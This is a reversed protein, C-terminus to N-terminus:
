CLIDWKNRDLRGTTDAMKSDVLYAQMGRTPHQVIDGTSIDAGCYCYYHSLLLAITIDAGCSFMSCDEESQDKSLLELEKWAQSVTKRADASPPPRVHGNTEHPSPLGSQRFSPVEYSGVARGLSNEVQDLRKELSSPMTELIMRLCQSIWSAQERPLTPTSFRLEIELDEAHPVAIAWLDASDGLEGESSLACDAGGIRVSANLSGHNQYVMASSFRTGGPWSTCDRIISRYGLHHHPVAAVTQDQMQSILTALTTNQDLRARVPLFNVCPGRVDDVGPFSSLYRNASVEGFVVDKEGLAQSLLLSWAAKMVSSATGLSTQMNQLPVRIQIREDLPHGARITEAPPPPVLYPMSSYQLTEKWFRRAASGDLAEVHSIWSHFHPGDSLSNHMYAADLDRFVLGLSIADYLSHHIELCLRQGQQGDADSILYFRALTTEEHSSTASPAPNQKKMGEVVMEGPLAKLVVQYLTPGHQVFVTRLIPHHQVVQECARRLRAADLAPSLELTFSILYGNGGGAEGAALMAAQVDTAPVVSEINDNQFYPNSQNLQSLRSNFTGLIAAVPQSLVNLRRGNQHSEGEATADTGPLSEAIVALSQSTLLAATTAQFGRRRCRSAVQMALISDGGMQVFSSERGIEGEPIRLVSSWVSQLLREEETAPPTSAGAATLRAELAARASSLDKKRTKLWERISAGDLKASATRPMREVALWVTPVMYSPLKSRAHDRIARLYQAALDAHPDSLEQLPTGRPLQPDTLCIVAVLETRGASIKTTTFVDRVEECTTLASELEGLEFRQGRIKVQNDQRGVFCISGDPNYKALDGTRYFHGTANKDRTPSWSPLPPIFSTATKVHDNLYGRAVGPGEILLEGVAGIPVLENTNGPSVIWIACGVPRGISEPYRSAPTLEAVTSLISAECPGWGNFLRLARGWTKSAESGVPEGISLLSQLGPVDDPSITRLVTPTLWAWNVKSSEIFGALSSERAEESPICLCGGFLLAGFIEGMSIDWVHAAFQLIRCGPQWGFRQALFTLSSALCRHELMVGKPVGTSGSTFIIYAVDEPSSTGNDTPGTVDPLASVSAASVAFVDPALGTSSAHEATSTLVTKAEASSVIAAKRDYPDSRDIPVCVGGAKMIAFIGVVTWLSKEFIFAVACDTSVGRRRLEHALRDSIEDLERYSASGDGAEVAPAAPQERAQASFLEHLCKEVTEPVADNWQLIESRDHPNLRPLRELKTQPDAEMLSQLTHHFQHLIRRVQSECLIAPDSLTEVLIGDTRLNCNLVLSFAGQPEDMHDYTVEQSERPNASPRVNLLTQFGSAIRAADSVERIRTTGYQLAPDMQLQRLATTREKLIGEVTIGRRLNVQVPVTAITPGLTTEAGALAPTRGSLVLGFAVSESGAYSTATLAWAAELFSPVHALSVEADIQDFAIEQTVRQAAEPVYGPQVRPFIAPAGKFRFAWFSKAASEDMGICHAVFDKFSARKELPRDYYYVNLTDRLLPPISSHDMIAHHMTLVLKRGIIASRFLPMGLGRPRAKDDRLYLAVADDGDDDDGDQFRHQMGHDQDEDENETIVVQMLGLRSDALRTRLVAYLSVVRRLAACFRGLEVSPGLALVFQFVSAGTSITSEAMSSVQLPTCAYIDDIRDVSVHCAEAIETLTAEDVEERSMVVAPPM